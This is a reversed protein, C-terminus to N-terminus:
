NACDPMGHLTPAARGLCLPGTVKGDVACRAQAEGPEEEDEESAPEGRGRRRMPPPELRYGGRGGRLLISLTLAAVSKKPGAIATVFGVGSDPGMVRERVLLLPRAAAWAEAGM